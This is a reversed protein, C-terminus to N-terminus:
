YFHREDFSFPASVTGYLDINMQDGKDSLERQRVLTREKRSAEKAKELAQPSVDCLINSCSGGDGSNVLKGTEDCILVATHM